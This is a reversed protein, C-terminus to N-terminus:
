SKERGSHKETEQMIGNLEGRLYMVKRGTGYRKLVGAKRLKYLSTRCMGTFAAAQQQTMYETHEGAAQGGKLERLETLIQELMSQVQSAGKEQIM